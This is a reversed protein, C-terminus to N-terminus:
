EAGSFQAVLTERGRWSGCSQWWWGFVFTEEVGSAGQAGEKPATRRKNLDRSMKEGREGQRTEMLTLNNKSKKGETKM